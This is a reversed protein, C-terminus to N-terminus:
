KKSHPYRVEWKEPAHSFFLLSQGEVYVIVPKWLRECSRNEFTDCASISRSLHLDMTCMVTFVSCGCRIFVEDIQRPLLLFPLSLSPLPFTPLSLPCVHASRDPSLSSLGMFQLRDSFFQCFRDCLRAADQACCVVVEVDSHTLYGGFHAKELTLLSNGGGPLSSSVGKGAGWGGVWM